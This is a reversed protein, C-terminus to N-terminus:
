VPITARPASISGSWGPSGITRRNNNSLEGYSALVVSQACSTVVGLIFGSVALGLSSLVLVISLNVDDGLVGNLASFLLALGALPFAM